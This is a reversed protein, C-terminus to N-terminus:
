FSADLQLRALHVGGELSEGFAWAWDAQIKLAHGNLYLNAGAALGHGLAAAQAVLAPDTGERAVLHEWRSWLEFGDYVLVGLQVLYGWGSRSWEVHVGGADDIWEFRDRSAGRWVIEGLFSVGAWKFVVDAALHLYDFHAREFRLGTTSRARDARHNFAIGGGVALRPPGRSLDSEADDDFAGFPRVSVRATYLFGVDAFGIRNRGDGGFFGLTYSLVGGLGFLDGSGAAIGVDRDLTLERVVESRDVTMLSSERVTRARDFPVFFQGVRVNLDRLHTVEVYADFIPSPNGPEFDNAGLALQLGYRVRPDLVHGTWWIRATKVEFLAQADDAVVRVTARLQLRARLQASFPEGADITLGRGPEASVRVGPRAVERDEPEAGHSQTPEAGRDEPETSEGREAEAREPDEPETGERQAPGARADEDPPTQGRAPLALALFSGLFLASRCPGLPSRPRARVERVRRGGHEM